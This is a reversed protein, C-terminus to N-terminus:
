VSGKSIAALYDAIAVGVLESCRAQEIETLIFTFTGPGGCREVRVDVPTGATTSTAYAKAYGGCNRCTGVFHSAYGKRLSTMALEWALEHGLERTLGDVYDRTEAALVIDYERAKNIKM